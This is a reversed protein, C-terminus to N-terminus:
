GVIEDGSLDRLFRIQKPDCSKRHRVEIYSKNELENRYKRITAATKFDTAKMIQSDSIPTWDEPAHGFITKFRYIMVYLATAQNGLRSPLNM